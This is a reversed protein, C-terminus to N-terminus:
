RPELGTIRPKLWDKVSSPEPGKDSSWLRQFLFGTLGHQRVVDVFNDTVICHAGPLTKLRCLFQDRLTEARFVFTDIAMIRGSSAFRKIESKDEDLADVTNTIFFLWYTAGEFILEIWEGLGELHPLLVRKANISFVPHRAGLQSYDPLVLKAGRPALESDRKIEIRPHADFFAADDWPNLPLGQGEKTTFSVWKEQRYDPHMHYVNMM